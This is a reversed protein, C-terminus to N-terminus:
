RPSAGRRRYAAGPWCRDQVLAPSMVGELVGEADPAPAFYAVAGARALVVTHGPEVQEGGDDNVPIGGMEAFRESLPFVGPLGYLGLEEGM